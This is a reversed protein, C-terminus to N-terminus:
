VLEFTQTNKFNIKKNTLMLDICRSSTSRFCTPKKILNYLEHNNILTLIDLDCQLLIFDGMILLNGYIVSYYDILRNISDM